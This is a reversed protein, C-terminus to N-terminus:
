ELGRATRVATGGNRKIRVRVAGAGSTDFVRVNGLETGSYGDNAIRIKRDGSLEIDTSEPSFRLRANPRELVIEPGDGRFLLYDGWALTDKDGLEHLSTGRAAAYDLFQFFLSDPSADGPLLMAGVPQSDLIDWAWRVGAPSAGGLVLWDIRKVGARDLYPLMVERAAGGGFRSVRGPVTLLSQGEPLRVLAAHSGGLDPFEARLEGRKAALIGPWFLSNLWLLGVLATRGLNARSEVVGSAFWVFVWFLAMDILRPPSMSLAAGPLSSAFGALGAMLRIFLGAVSALAQGASLWVVAAIDSAFGSLVAAGALPIMPVNAILGIVSVRSFYWATLPGVAVQAALSALFIRALRRLPRIQWWRLAQFPRELRPTLLIIGTVAAFSMQFGPEFLWSPNFLLLFAFAALLTNLPRTQRQLPFTLLFAASMFSARLVSPRGGSVLAFLLVAALTFITTTWGRGALPALLSFVAAAVFGVHLGSVVLVHITGSLAFDERLHPDTQERAGLIIAAAVGRVRPDPYLKAHLENLRARVSGATVGPSLLDRFRFGSPELIVIDSDGIVRALGAIGRGALYERYDFLGPNAQGRPIRVEAVLALRENGNIAIDEGPAEVLLGFGGQEWTGGPSLLRDVEFVFRLRGQGPWSRRTLEWPPGQVRGVLAVTERDLGGLAEPFRAVRKSHIAYLISGSLLVFLLISTKHATSRFSLREPLFQLFLAACTAVALPNILGPAFRELMIGAALLGAFFFAPCNLPTGTGDPEGAQESM